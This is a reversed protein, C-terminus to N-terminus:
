TSKHSSFEIKNTNIPSEVSGEYTLFLFLFPAGGIDVSIRIEKKPYNLSLFKSELYEPIGSNGREVAEVDLERGWDKLQLDFFDRILNAIKENGESQSAFEIWDQETLDFFHQRKHYTSWKEKEFHPTGWENCVM